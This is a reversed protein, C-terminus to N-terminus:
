LISNILLELVQQLLPAFDARCVGKVQAGNALEDGCSDCVWVQSHLTARVNSSLISRLIVHKLAEVINPLVFSPAAEVTTLPTKM